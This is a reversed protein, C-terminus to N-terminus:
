KLDRTSRLTPRGRKANLEEQDQIGPHNSCIGCSDSDKFHYLCKVRSFELSDYQWSELGPRLRYLYHGDPLANEDLFIGGSDDANVSIGTRRSLDELGKLFEEFKNM